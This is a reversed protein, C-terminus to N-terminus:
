ESRTNQRCSHLLDERGVFQRGSTSERARALGHGSSRFGSSARLLRSLGFNLRTCANFIDRLSPSKRVPQVDACALLRTHVRPCRTGPSLPRPGRAKALPPVTRPFASGRDHDLQPGFDATGRLLLIRQPSKSQLEAPISPRPSLIQLHLVAAICTRSPAGKKRRLRPSCATKGAAALGRSDEQIGSFGGRDHLCQPSPVPGRCGKVDTGLYTCEPEHGTARGLTRPEAAREVTGVNVM